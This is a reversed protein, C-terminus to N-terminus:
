SEALQTLEAQLREMRDLCDDWEARNLCTFPAYFRQNTQQEATTRLTRGEHTVVLTGDDAAAVWGREQLEAVSEGYEQRSFGRHLLAQHIAAVTNAQGQWVYWFTEWTYGAIGYPRYSMMHTDDRFANFDACYQNLKVAAAAAEAPARRRSYRLCWPGGAETAMCSAIIREWLQALGALDTLHGDLGALWEVTREQMRQTVQLGSPTLTYEGHGQYDLWGETALLELLAAAIRESAYLARVRFRAVSLPEPHFEWAQVMMWAPSEAFGRRLQM